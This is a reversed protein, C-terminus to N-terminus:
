VWTVQWQLSTINYIDIFRNADWRLYTAPPGEEITVSNYDIADEATMDRYAYFSLVMGQTQTCATVPQSRYHAFGGYWETYQYGEPFATACPAVILNLSFTGTAADRTWFFWYRFGNVHRNSSPNYNPMDDTCRYLNTTWTVHWRDIPTPTPPNPDGALLYGCREPATVLLSNPGSGESCIAVSTVCPAYGTRFDNEVPQQLLNFLSGCSVQEISREALGSYGTGAANLLLRERFQVLLSTQVLNLPTFRLLAPYGGPCCVSSSGTTETVPGDPSPGCCCGLGRLGM